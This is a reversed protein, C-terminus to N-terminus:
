QMIKSDTPQWFSNGRDCGQNMQHKWNADLIQTGLLGEKAAFGDEAKEQEKIRDDEV